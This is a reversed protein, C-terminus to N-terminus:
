GCANQVCLDKLWMQTLQIEHPVFLTENAYCTLTFWSEKVERQPRHRSPCPSSMVSLHIIVSCLLPLLVKYRGLIRRYHVCTSILWYQKTSSTERALVVGWRYRVEGFLFPIFSPPLSPLIFQHPFSSPDFSRLWVSRSPNVLYM